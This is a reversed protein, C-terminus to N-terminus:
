PNTASVLSQVASAFGQCVGAKSLHFIENLGSATRLHLEDYLCVPFQPNNSFRRDPGGNRNVYRWTHGVVTADSPAGGEEIFRQSTVSLDLTHYSIAGIGATDYVLLRDPLFYLTQRGAGLTLVPVNTQIYPPPSTRLTTVNRQM